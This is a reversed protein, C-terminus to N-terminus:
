EALVKGTGNCESCRMRKTVRGSGRCAQCKHTLPRGDFDRIRSRSTIRGDGGCKECTAHETVFRRGKCSQCMYTKVPNQQQSGDEKKEIVNGSDSVSDDSEKSASSNTGDKNIRKGVKVRSVELWNMIKDFLRAEVAKLKQEYEDKDFKGFEMDRELKEKQAYAENRFDGIKDGIGVSGVYIIIDKGGSIRFKWHLVSSPDYSTEEFPVDGYDASRRVSLLNSEHTRVLEAHFERTVLNDIIADIQKTDPYYSLTNEGAVNLMGLWNTESQLRALEAWLKETVTFSAVYKRLNKQITFYSNVDFSVSRLKMAAYERRQAQVIPGHEKEEEERQQQLKRREIEREKAIREAELKREQEERQKKQEQEAKQWEDYEKIQQLGREYAAQNEAAQRKLEEAKEEERIKSLRKECIQPDMEEFAWVTKNVGLANKYSVRGVCIYYSSPIFDDGDVYKKNTKIFVPEPNIASYLNYKDRVLIGDSTVSLVGMVQLLNYAHGVQIRGLVFDMRDEHMPCTESLNKNNTTSLESVFLFASLLAICLLIGGILILFVKVAGNTQKPVDTVMGMIFKTHCVSCEAKQGLQSRTIEYKTGCNPCKIIKISDAKHSSSQGNPVTIRKDCYPCKIIQGYLSSDTVM